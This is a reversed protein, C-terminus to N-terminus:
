QSLDMKDKMAKFDFPRERETIYGLPFWIIKIVGGDRGLEFLSIAFRHKDDLQTYDTLPFDFQTLDFDLGYREGTADPLRDQLSRWTVSVSATRAEVDIKWATVSVQWQGDPSRVRCTKGVCSTAPEQEAGSPSFYFTMVSARSADREGRAVRLMNIQRDIVRRAISALARRNADLHQVALRADVRVLLPKFEFHDHFNLTLLEVLLEERDAANDSGGKSGVIPEILNQFMSARLQTESQERQNLLSLSTSRSEYRQAVWAAMVIAGAAVLKSMSDIYTTWRRNGEGGAAGDTM